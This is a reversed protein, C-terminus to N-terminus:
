RNGRTLLKSLTAIARAASKRWREDKEGDEIMYRVKDNLWELAAQGEVTLDQARRERLEAVVLPLMDMTTLVDDEDYDRLDGGTGRQGLWNLEEDTLRDM